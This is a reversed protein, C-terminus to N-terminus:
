DEEALKITKVGLLFFALAFIASYICNQLAGSPNSYVMSDRLGEAMYYLPLARAVTQLAEPMFEVPWFLGSLFMMPFMVANAATDASQSDKVLRGILMGIGAFTLADLVVFLPLYLTFDVKLSFVAIGVLLIAATAIFSIFLIHALLGTMWEWSKLPTTALKKLIGKQRYEANVAVATFLSTTMVAMAVIGPTFFDLFIHKEMVMEKGVMEVVRKGGTIRLNFDELVASLVGIEMESQSEGPDYIVTVNVTRSTNLSTFVEMSFNAPIILVVPVDEQEMYERPDKEGVMEVEFAGTSNIARLLEGSLPGGDLDKVGLTYKVDGGASYIYGFLLILIVPFLIVWFVAMRSRLFQRTQIKFVTIAKM